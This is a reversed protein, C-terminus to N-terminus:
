THCLPKVDRILVFRDSHELAIEHFKKRSHMGHGRQNQVKRHNGVHEVDRQPLALERDYRYPDQKQQTDQQPRQEFVEDVPVDKM